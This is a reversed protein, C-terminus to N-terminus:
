PLYNLPDALEGNVRVEFHVHPGTSYGTSGVFAVTQGRFVATGESVALSQNHAYLTTLGGGHDLIITYGYGSMWGSYIVTGSDAAMVNEGYDAAIDMGSHYKSTGFIPHVRWGYYSTITGGNYPWQMSGTGVGSSGGGELRRIMQTIYKSTEELEDMERQVKAREALAQEYIARQAKELNSVENKKDDAIKKVAVLSVKAKELEIQRSLINLKERNIQDLVELDKKVIRQLLEMRSSFDNFDTSGILVDLYNMQGNKFIDRLRQGYIKMSAALRKEAENIEVQCEEIQSQVANLNNSATKLEANAKSLQSEIIALKEAATQEKKRAQEMQKEKQQKQAEINELEAKKETVTSEAFSLSMNAVLLIVSLVLAIYKQLSM